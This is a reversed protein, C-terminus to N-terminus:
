ALVLKIQFCTICKFYMIIDGGFLMTWTMIIVINGILAHFNGIFLDFYITNLNEWGIELYFCKYLKGM